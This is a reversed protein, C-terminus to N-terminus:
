VGLLALAREIDRDMRRTAAAINTYGALHLLGIRTNHLCAM